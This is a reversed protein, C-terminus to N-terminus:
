RVSKPSRFIGIFCRRRFLRGFFRGKRNALFHSSMQLGSRDDGQFVQKRGRGLVRVGEIYPIVTKIWSKWVPLLKVGLDYVKAYASYEKDLKEKYQEIERKIVSSIEDVKFRM